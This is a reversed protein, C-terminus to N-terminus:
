KGMFRIIYFAAGTPDEVVAFRGVPIDMPPVLIKGGLEGVRRACADVDEVAVFCSWYPSVNGWEPTM